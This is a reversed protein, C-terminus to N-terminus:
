LMDPRLRIQNTKSEQILETMHQRLHSLSKKAINKVLKATLPQASDYVEDFIKKYFEANAKSEIVIGGKHKTLSERLPLQLTGFSDGLIVSFTEAGESSYRFCLNPVRLLEILKDYCSATLEYAQKKDQLKKYIRLFTKEPRLSLVYYTTLKGTRCLDIIAAAYEKTGYMQQWIEPQLISPLHSTRCFIKADKLEQIREGYLDLHPFYKVVLSDPASEFIKDLGNSVQDCKKINNSLEQKKKSASQQIQPKNIAYEAGRKIVFGIKQLEKLQAFMNSKQIPKGTLKKYSQEIDKPRSKDTASTHDIAKMLEFQQETVGILKAIDSDM